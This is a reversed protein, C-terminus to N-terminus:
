MKKIKGVQEYRILTMTDGQKVFQQSVSHTTACSTTLTAIAAILTAAAIFAIKAWLPKKKIWDLIKKLEEM